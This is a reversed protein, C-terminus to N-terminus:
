HAAPALARYTYGRNLNPDLMQATLGPNPVTGTSVSAITVPTDQPLDLRFVAATATPPVPGHNQGDVLAVRQAQTYGPRALVEPMHVTMYWNEFKDGATPAPVTFVVQTYDTRTGGAPVQPDPTTRNQLPASFRYVYSDAKAADAPCGGVSAPGATGRFATMTANLDATAFEYLALYKPMAVTVDFMQPVNLAFQQVSVFGPLSRAAPVRQSTFCQTFATDDGAAVDTFVMLYYHQAPPPASTTAPAAASGSGCAALSAALIAACSGMLARHLSKSM